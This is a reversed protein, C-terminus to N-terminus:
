YAGRGRRRHPMEGKHMRGGPLSWVGDIELVFLVKGDREIFAKCPIDAILHEGNM